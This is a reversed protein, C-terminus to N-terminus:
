KKRSHAKDSGWFAEDRIYQTESNAWPFPREAVVHTMRDPVPVSPMDLHLSLPPRSRRYIAKNASTVLVVTRMMAM